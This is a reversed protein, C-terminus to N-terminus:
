RGRLSGGKQRPPFEALSRQHENLLDYVQGGWAIGMRMALDDAKQGGHREYPDMRLNFVLASPRLSDFFGDRVKM